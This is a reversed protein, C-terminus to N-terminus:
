MKLWRFPYNEEELYNTKPNRLRIKAKRGEFTYKKRLRNSFLCRKPDVKESRFWVLFKTTSSKKKLKIM